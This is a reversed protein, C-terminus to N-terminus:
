ANEKEVQEFDSAYNEVFEELGDQEAQAYHALEKITVILRAKQTWYSTEVNRYPETNALNLVLRDILYEKFTDEDFEHEVEDYLFDYDYNEDLFEELEDDLNNEDVQRDEFFDDIGLDTQVSAVHDPIDPQSNFTKIENDAKFDSYVEGVRKTLKQQMLNRATSKLQENAM